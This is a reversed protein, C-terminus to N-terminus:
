RKDRIIYKSNSNICKNCLARTTISTGTKLRITKIVTNKAGCYECEGVFIEGSNKPVDNKPPTNNSDASTTKNNDATVPTDTKKSNDEIRAMIVESSASTTRMNKATEGTNEVIKALGLLVITQLYGGVLGGIFVVLGLGPIDTNMGILIGGVVAGILSLALLIGASIRLVDDIKNYM